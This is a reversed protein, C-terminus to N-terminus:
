SFYHKGPGLRSLYLKPFMFIYECKRYYRLLASFVLFQKDHVNLAMNESIRAVCHALIDDAMPKGLEGAIFFFGTEAATPNICLAQWHPCSSQM